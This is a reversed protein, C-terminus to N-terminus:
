AFPDAYPADETLNDVVFQALYRALDDDDWDLHDRRASTIGIFIIAELQTMDRSAMTDELGEVDGSGTM